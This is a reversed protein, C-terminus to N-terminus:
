SGRTKDWYGELLGQADALQDEILHLGSLLEGDKVEHPETMCHQVLLRALAEGKVLKNYVLHYQEDTMACRIQEVSKAAM